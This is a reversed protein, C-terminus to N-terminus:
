EGGVEGTTVAIIPLDPRLMRLESIPDIHTHEETPMPEIPLADGYQREMEALWAFVADKKADGEGDFDPVVIDALQPHQALLFPRCERSARPLAHTYLSDGTMYNLIRYVGDIHARSVLRGTTISLIDGLAFWESM